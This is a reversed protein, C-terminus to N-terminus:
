LIRIKMQFSVRDNAVFVTLPTGQFSLSVKSLNSVINALYDLRFLGLKDTM